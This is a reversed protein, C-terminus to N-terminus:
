RILCSSPEVVTTYDMNPLDPFFFPQGNMTGYTAGCIGYVTGVRIFQSTSNVYRDECKDADAAKLPISLKYCPMIPTNGNSFYDKWGIFFMGFMRWSNYTKDEDPKPINSNNQVRYYFYGRTIKQQNISGNIANAFGSIMSYMMFMLPLFIILEILAQGSQNKLSHKKM